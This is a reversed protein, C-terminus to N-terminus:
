TRSILNFIIQMILFTYFGSIIDDAMIGWGGKLNESKRAPFPKIIDLARWLIFASIIWLFDKPLGLFSIWTGVWEDITCEAPDKGYVKEFKGSIIIGLITFLIIIFLLAKYDESKPLMFYILMAVLSGFTGSAFTIYGTYLGSGVIKEFWNIQKM